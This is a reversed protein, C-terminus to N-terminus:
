PRVDVAVPCHDSADRWQDFAGVSVSRLRKRWARPLFVFDIHYPARADRLHFYTARSEAGHPEGTFAHYASEVGLGDLLEVLQAFRPVFRGHFFACSNFDGAVITPAARIFPALGEVIRLVNATYSGGAALQTWVAVLQFMTSRPGEVRAAIALSGGPRVGDVVTLRYPPSAFIGLGKHPSRGVWGHTTSAYLPALAEARPSACEPVVLISPRLPAIRPLKAHLAMCCNWTLLRM